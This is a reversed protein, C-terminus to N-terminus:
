RVGRFSKTGPPPTGFENQIWNRKAHIRECDDHLTRLDFFQNSQSTLPLFKVLLELSKLHLVWNNLELSGQAQPARNVRRSTFLRM